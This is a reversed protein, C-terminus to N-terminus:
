VEIFCCFNNLQKGLDQFEGWISMLGDKDTPINRQAMWETVENSSNYCRLDVEDGGMHFVDKDFISFMSLYIKEPFFCNKSSPKSLKQLIL